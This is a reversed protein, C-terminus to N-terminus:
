AAAEANAALTAQLPGMDGEFAKNMADFAADIQDHAANAAMLNSVYDNGMEILSNSEKVPVKVAVRQSAALQEVKGLAAALEAAASERATAIRQGEIGLLRKLEGKIFTESAGPTELAKVLHEAAVLEARDRSFDSEAEALLRKAQVLGGKILPRELWEAHMEAAEEANAAIGRSLKISAKVREASPFRPDCARELHTAPYQAEIHSFLATTKDIPVIFADDNMRQVANRSDPRSHSGARRLVIEHVEAEGATRFTMSPDSNCYYEGSSTQKIM